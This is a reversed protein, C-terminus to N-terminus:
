EVTFSNEAIILGDSGVLQVRWPGPTLEASSWTRWRPSTGITMEVAAYVADRHLWIFSLATPEGDNAIRAFAYASGDAVSFTESVEVPEREVIQRAVVFDVVRLNAGEEAGTPGAAGTPLAAAVLSTPRKAKPPNEPTLDGAPAQSLATAPGHQFVLCDQQNAKLETCLDYAKTWGKLPATRVRYYDSGNAEAQHVELKAGGLLDNFRQELRAVEKDADGASRFSALQLVFSSPGDGLPVISPKTAGAKAVGAKAIKTKPTGIKSLKTPAASPTAATTKATNAKSASAGALKAGGGIAITLPLTATAKDGDAEHATASVMLKAPESFDPPPILSLAELQDPELRWRGDGLEHGATLRAGDPLGSITIALRESGDGDTLAAEIGLPIPGSGDSITDAVELGPLDAVGALDIKLPLTAFVDADGELNLTGKITVQFKGSYDMPPILTLNAMQEPSISWTGDGNDTGALLLTGDPMDSVVVSLAEDAISAPLQARVDLRLARDEKGQADRVQLVAGSVGRLRAIRVTSPKETQQEQPQATTAARAAVDAAPAAGNSAERSAKATVEAVPEAGDSAERSGGLGLWVLAGGTLLLGILLGAAIPARGAAQLRSPKRKPRTLTITTVPAELIPASAPETEQPDVTDDAPEPTEDRQAPPEPIEVPIETALIEADEIEAPGMWAPLASQEGNEVPAADETETAGAEDEAASAADETAETASTVNEIDGSDDIAAAPAEPQKLCELRHHGIACDQLLSYASGCIQPVLEPRGAMVLQVLKQGDKEITTLRAFDELVEVSLLQADDIMVVATAGRELREILVETLAYVRGLRDEVSNAVGAADCCIKLLEDFSTSPHRPLVVFCDEAELANKLKYLLPTKGAGAEGILLALGCRERLGALLRDFVRDFGSGGSAIRSDRDGPSAGGDTELGDIAM